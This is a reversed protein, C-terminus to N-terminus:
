AKVFRNRLVGIGEIEVEYVDGPQLWRQPRRAMAVGSPTGTLVIDGPELTMISTIFAVLQPVTYILDSTRSDQMTEGNLRGRIALDPSPGLEDVTVIWPGLPCFGDFTKGAAWQGTKMQYDRASVDNAATFGLLVRAVDAEAVDRCRRGIVFVLESEWDIQDSVSPLPVDDYPGRLTNDWKPFLPPAPPPQAGTEAAHARYNLGICVIKRPRGVPALLTAAALAGLARGREVRATDGGTAELLAPLDDFEQAHLQAAYLTEGEVLAVRPGAPGAVRAIRM